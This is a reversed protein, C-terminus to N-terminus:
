FKPSSGVNYWKWSYDECAYQGNSEKWIQENCEVYEIPKNGAIYAILKGDEYQIDATYCGGHRWYTAKNNKSYILTLANADWRPDKTDKRCIYKPFEM